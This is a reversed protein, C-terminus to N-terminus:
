DEAEVEALDELEADTLDEPNSPVPTSSVIEADIVDADKDKIRSPLALMREMVNLVKRRKEPDAAVKKISEKGYIEDQHTVTAEVDVQGLHRTSLGLDMKLDAINGLIERAIRVEQGMTTTLKGITKELKGDIGIREMQLRYLKELEAIEDIGESVELQAKQFSEPIRKAYLQNKPITDRYRQLVQTLSIRTAHTYENKDEQIFRAIEPM